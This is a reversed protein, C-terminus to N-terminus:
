DPRKAVVVMAPRVLRDSLVYGKQFVMVVTDPEADETPQTSMAQHFEPDFPQGLPDVERLGFKELAAVFMKLTLDMGERVSDMAAGAESTAKLGLEM